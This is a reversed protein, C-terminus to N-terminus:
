GKVKKVLDYAEKAAKYNRDANKGFRRKMVKKMTELSFQGTIKAYAGLLLTNLIPYGSLMLNNKIAIGTADVIWIEELNGLCDLNVYDPANILVVGKVSDVISQIDLLTFDFIITYDPNTVACYDLIESNRALKSFGRIPAGRREAGIMPIDLVDKAYGEEFAYECLLNSATIAGQGGRGHITVEVVNENKAIAMNLVMKAKTDM